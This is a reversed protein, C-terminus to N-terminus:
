DRAEDTSRVPDTFCRQGTWKSMHMYSSRILRYTAGRVSTKGSVKHALARAASKIGRLTAREASGHPGPTPPM